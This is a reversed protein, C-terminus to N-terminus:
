RFPVAEAHFLALSVYGKGEVLVLTRVLLASSLKGEECEEWGDYVAFRKHCRNLGHCAHVYGCWTGHRQTLCPWINM